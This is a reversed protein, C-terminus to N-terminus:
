YLLGSALFLIAYFRMGTLLVSTTAGLPQGM